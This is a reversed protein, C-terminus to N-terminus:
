SVQRCFRFGSLGFASCGNMAIVVFDAIENFELGIKLLQKEDAEKLWQNILATFAEFGKLIHDSMSRNQGSLEVLM